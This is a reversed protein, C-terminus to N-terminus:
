GNPTRKLKCELQQGADHLENAAEKPAIDLPLYNTRENAQKEFRPLVNSILIDWVDNSRSVLAKGPTNFITAPNSVTQGLATTTNAERM